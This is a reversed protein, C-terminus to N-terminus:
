RRRRVLWLGILLGSGALVLASPEPILAIQNGSVGYTYDIYYGVPLNTVAAFPGVLTTYEAFVYASDNLPNLVKFDVTAGTIDLTGVVTLMDASGGGDGDVDVLFTGALTFDNSITLAGISFGPSVTGIINTIGTVYGNGALTGTGSIPTGLRVENKLALTGGTFNFRSFVGNTAILRDVTLTGSALNVIGTVGGIGVLQGAAWPRSVELLGTGSSNTVVVNGGSINLTAVATSQTAIVSADILGLTVGGLGQFTSGPLVNVASSVRSSFANNFFRSADFRDLAVFAGGNTLILTATSEAGANAQAFTVVGANTWSANNLIITSRTFGAQGTIGSGSVELTGRNVFTAGGGIDFVFTKGGSAGNDLIRTSGVSMVGAGNLTNTTNATAAATWLNFLGGVYIVGQNTITSNSRGERNFAGANSIVGSPGVVLFPNGRNITINGTATLQGDVVLKGPATDDMNLHNVLNTPGAIVLTGLGAKNLTGASSLIQNSIILTAASNTVNFTFATSSTNSVVRDPALGLYALDAGAYQLTGAGNFLLNGSGIRSPDDVRLTGANITTGGSYNNNGTLVLIGLGSKTVQLAGTIDNTVTFAHISNSIDLSVNATNWIVPRTNLNSLTNGDIRLTGGNITLATGAAGLNADASITLVGEELITGGTYSNIGSLLLTGSGSKALTTVNGGIAGSITTLRTNTVTISGVMNVGGALTIYAGGGGGFNSIVLDGTGSINGNIIIKANNVGFTTILLSDNLVLNPNITLTGNNNAVAIRAMGSSVDMTINRSSVDALITWNAAAAGSGLSVIQGVTVDVNATTVATVATTNTIRVMVDVGNPVGSPSWLTANDWAGTSAGIWTNTIQAQAALPLTLMLAILIIHQITKM